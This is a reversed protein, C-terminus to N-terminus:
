NGDNKKEKCYKAIGKVKNIAEKNNNRWRKELDVTSMLLKNVKKEDTMDRLDSKM